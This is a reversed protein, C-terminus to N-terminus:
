GILMIIFITWNLHIFIKQDVFSKANLWVIAMTARVGSLLKIPYNPRTWAVMREVVGIRLFCSLMKGNETCNNMVQLDM